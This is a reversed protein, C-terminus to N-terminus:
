EEHTESNTSIMEQLWWTQVKNVWMRAGWGCVFLVLLVTMGILPIGSEPIGLYNRELIIDYYFYRGESGTQHLMQAWQSVGFNLVMNEQPCSVTAEDADQSPVLVNGHDDTAFMIKEAHLLRRRSIKMRETSGITSSKDSELGDQDKNTEPSECLLRFHMQVSMQLQIYLSMATLCV